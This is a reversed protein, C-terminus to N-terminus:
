IQVTLLDCDNAENISGMLRINLLQRNLKYFFLKIIQHNFIGALSSKNDVQLVQLVSRHEIQKSSISVDDHIITHQQAGAELVNRVTIDGGGEWQPM